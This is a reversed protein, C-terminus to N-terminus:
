TAQKIGLEDGNWRSWQVISWLSSISTPDLGQGTGNVGDLVQQLVRCREVEPNTTNALNQGLPTHGYVQIPNRTLMPSQGLDRYRDSSGKRLLYIIKIIIIEIIEFTDYTPVLISRQSLTGSAPSPNAMTSRKSKFSISHKVQIVLLSLHKHPHYDPRPWRARDTDVGNLRSLWRPPPRECIVMLV